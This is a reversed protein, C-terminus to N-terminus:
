QPPSSRLGLVILAIWVLGMAGLVLAGMRARLIDKTSLPLAPPSHVRKGLQVFRKPSILGFVSLSVAVLGLVVTIVLGAWTNRVEGWRSLAPVLCLPNM